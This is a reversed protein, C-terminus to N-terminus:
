EGTSIVHSKGDVSNSMPQVAGRHLLCPQEPSVTPDMIKFRAMAALETISEIIDEINGVIDLLLMSVAVISAIEMLNAGNFQSTKLLSKINDTAAKSNLMHHAAANSRRMKKTVCAIEKLAKGCEMCVKTCSEAFIDRIEADSQIHSHLINNLAEIKYACERTLSGIKLYQKWPHFFKFHGHAPEWMALNAMTEENSKSFLVSKYSQLVSSENKAHGDDKVAKFYERGFEELFLGLKEINAFILNHLDGGIWVPYILISIIISTCSGIIITSVRMHAMKLVQNDRYGSVSVLCFTLIFITLGYDYRAKLTPIFRTYTMIAAAIFVFTAILIPEGTRGSFTAIRHAGIGLTSGIFTAVMRNICKGLTAGVSFEFVVVVTLVAWMANVGFGDYLPNFYYFMSVLTLALGVKLSHAIKRPDDEGIRKVEKGIEIIKNRGKKVYSRWKGDSREESNPSAM